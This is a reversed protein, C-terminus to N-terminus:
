DNRDRSAGLHSGSTTTTFHIGGHEGLLPLESLTNPPPDFDYSGSVGTEGSLHGFVSRVVCMPSGENRPARSTDFFVGSNQGRADGQGDEVGGQM